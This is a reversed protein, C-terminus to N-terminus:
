TWPPLPDLFGRVERALRIPQEMGIMHAVDDWIVARANPADTELKRATATVGSFDLAGAIALVPCSIDGIRDAAPPDLRIERGAVRAPDNLPLNMEFLLARAPAALRGVPQGPGDGWVGTEFATLAAADFPDATDVKEYAEVIALEEPTEGGDYGGLGAGVGIVAVVRDSAEIAADFALRGGRSNGVLAAREVGFADLVALLDARPSFEVDETPSRGFGRADFRIVRYRADVLPGVMADWSRLDAVGAHLLVIPPGTGDDVVNLRGGPVDVLQSSM